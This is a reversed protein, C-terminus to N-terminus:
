VRAYTVDRRLLEAKSFVPFVELAEDYDDLWYADPNREFKLFAGSKGPKAARHYKFFVHRDTMGLVELKGTTHSLVYRARKALGSVKAKSKEFIEYGEEIPVSYDRNGLAPRCQFLYYPPVGTFSLERFLQALTATGDNLGRILPTQNALIAGKKQLTKIAELAADTLEKPHSFHTMVYIKKKPTALREIMNPILGKKMVRYPNFSLMKTGIRVIRIHPIELLRGIVGELKRATLMLPDGGTLLVNTIEDQRKIYELARPFDRLIDTQKRLFIRKRFCYRCIGGCVGSILLVATSRYKHQLGPMITYQEEDSPDLKGSELLERVDPVVLRRIPDEPDSWDILSLYYDSVRFAYQDSVRRLVTKEKLGLSDLRDINNIYKVKRM